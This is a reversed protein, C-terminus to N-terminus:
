FLGVDGWRSNILTLAVVPATETRMVRPGLRLTRFGDARASSVEAETLGGEPGILLAVTQPATDPLKQDDAAGDLVWKEDASVANVWNLLACPPSVQPVTVRGSQECASIAVQQWHAVRKEIREAPIAFDVRESQLPQIASVGLETAKQVAWDFRDGKSLGLGLLTKVPSETAPNIADSLLVTVSDKGMAVIQGPFEYGGGDFLVIPDGLQTRLVRGLYHAGTGRIEVQSHPDLIQDVFLRPIRM